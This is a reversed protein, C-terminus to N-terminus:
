ERQHQLLVVVDDEAVEQHRAEGPHVEVLLDRLATGPERLPHDEDGSASERIARGLEQCPDAVSFDHLWELNGVELARERLERGTAALLTDVRGYWRRFTCGTCFTDLVHQELNGCQVPHLTSLRAAGLLRLHM